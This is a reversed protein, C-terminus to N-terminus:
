AFDSRIPKNHRIVSWQGRFNLCARQAASSSSHQTHPTPIDTSEEGAKVEREGRPSGMPCHTVTAVENGLRGVVIAHVILVRTLQLLLVADVLQLIIYAM